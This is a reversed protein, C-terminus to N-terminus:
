PRKVLDKEKFKRENRAPSIVCAAAKEELRQVEAKGIFEGGRYVSLVDGLDLGDARGLNVLIFRYEENVDLIEGSLLPNPTVVIKELEIVKPQESFGRLKEEIKRKETLTILLKSEAQRRATVEKELKDLALTIQRKKENLEVDLKEAKEKEREFAKEVNKKAIVTQRLEGEVRSKEKFSLFLQEETFLRLSKEQERLIYFLTTTIILSVIIVAALFKPRVQSILKSAIKSVVKM